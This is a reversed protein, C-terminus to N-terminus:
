RTFIDKFKQFNFLSDTVQFYNVYLQVYFNNDVPKM